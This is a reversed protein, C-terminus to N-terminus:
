RQALRRAFHVEIAKAVGDAVKRRGSASNLFTVDQANTL